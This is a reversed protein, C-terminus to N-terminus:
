SVTKLKSNVRSNLYSYTPTADVSQQSAEVNTPDKLPVVFKTEVKIPKRSKKHM